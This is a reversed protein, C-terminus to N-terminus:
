ILEMRRMNKLNDDTEKLMERLSLSDAYDFECISYILHNIYKTNDMLLRNNQRAMEIRLAEAKDEEDTVKLDEYVRGIAVCLELRANYKKYPHKINIDIKKMTTNSKDIKNSLNTRTKPNSFPVFYTLYKM